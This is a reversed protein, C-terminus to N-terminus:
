QIAHVTRSREFREVAEPRFRIKRPTLWLAELAHARALGRVYDETTQWRWALDKVTLLRAARANDREGAKM